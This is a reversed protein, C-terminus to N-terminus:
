WKRLPNETYTMELNEGTLKAGTVKQNCEQAVEEAEKRARSVMVEIIFCLVLPMIGAIYWVVNSMVAFVVCLFILATYIIVSPLFVFFIYLSEVALFHAFRVLFHRETDEFQQSHQWTWRDAEKQPMISIFDEMILQLSVIKRVSESELMQQIKSGTLNEKVGSHARASRSATDKSSERGLATAWSDRIDESLGHFLKKQSAMVGFLVLACFGDLLWGNHEDNIWGESFKMDSLCSRLTMFAAAWSIVRTVFIEADNLPDGAKRSPRHSCYPRRLLYRLYWVNNAIFFISGVSTVIPLFDVGEAYFGLENAKNGTDPVRSLMMCSQTTANGLLWAIKRSIIKEEHQFNRPTYQQCFAAYFPRQKKVDEISESLNAEDVEAGAPLARIEEVLERRVRIFEDSARKVTRHLIICILLASAVSSFLRDIYAQSVWRDQVEHNEPNLRQPVFALPLVVVPAQIILFAALKQLNSLVYISFAQEGKFKIHHAYRLLYTISYIAFLAIWGRLYYHHGRSLAEYWENCVPEVNFPISIISVLSALVQFWPSLTISLDAFVQLIQAAAGCQKVQIMRKLGFSIKPVRWAWKKATYQLALLFIIFSTIVSLPLM